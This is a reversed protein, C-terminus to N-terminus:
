KLHYEESCMIPLMISMTVNDVDNRFFVKLTEETSTKM